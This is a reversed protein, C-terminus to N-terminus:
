PLFNNPEEVYGTSEQLKGDRISAIGSKIDLLWNNGKKCGASFSRPFYM